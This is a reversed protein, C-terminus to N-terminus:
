PKKFLEAKKEFIYAMVAIKHSCLRDPHLSCYMCTCTMRGDEWVKVIYYETDGKVEFTAGREIHILKVREEKFLRIGKKYINDSM